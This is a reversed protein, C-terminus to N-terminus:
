ITTQFGIEVVQDPPIRFFAPAPQSLAAMFAFIRKRWWSMGRHGVPLLIERGFFFTTHEPAHGPLKAAALLEPVNPTDAFGYRGILRVFGPGLETSEIRRALPVRPVDETFITVLVNLNHVVHNHVFNRVLAPPAGEITGTMFVATGPVRAPREIHMLELFEQMDLVTERKFAGLQTRGKTWTAMLVAATAAVLVPFWGGAGLKALNAVVFTADAAMLILTVGLAAALPWQWLHRTVWFGLVTTIAMTLSVTLGYAAALDSSSRFALVLGLSAFMLLWNVAPVYIQGGATKSTHVVRLRPLLGLMTAQKTMSFAGSIMAQSAIITATTALFVMPLRLATPVLNFFPNNAATPDDLLLAGQGFYNLLLAPMVVAFWTLRIPRRGFHGMDAYMAESGTVVLFVGGLVWIARDGERVILDVAWRPDISLLVDPRRSIGLLGFLALAAFWVIVFPGFIAGLGGTGRHQAAFLSVLIVLTLPVIFPELQPAAVGLGEVASLVSIAPTITGDGYLLAAGVVGLMSAVVTRRKGPSAVLATLALIGGEGRNDARLVYAVYKVSVLLVLSWFILSLVGYLGGPTVAIAHEGSFCERMAYLPSTGIDGYVIGLAALSLSALQRGTIPREATIAVSM